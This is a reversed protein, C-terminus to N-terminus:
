ANGRTAGINALVAANGVRINESIIAMAMEGTYRRQDQLAAIQGVLQAACALMHEAPLAGAHRELLAMVEARFAQLDPTVPVSKMPIGTM